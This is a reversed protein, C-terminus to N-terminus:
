AAASKPVLKALQSVMYAVGAIKHEHKPEFSRLHAITCNRLMEATVGAHMEIDGDPLPRGYFLADAQQQGAVVNKLHGGANGESWYRNAYAIMEDATGGKAGIALTRVAAGVHDGAGPIRHDALAECWGHGTPANAEDFSGYIEMIITALVLPHGPYVVGSNTLNMAILHGHKSM